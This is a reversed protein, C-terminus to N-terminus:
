GRRVSSTTMFPYLQTSSDASLRVGCQDGVLDSAYGFAKQGHAFLTSTRQDLDNGDRALALQVRGKRVDRLALALQHQVPTPFHPRSVVISLELTALAPELRAHIQPWTLLKEHADFAIGGFPAVIQFRNAAKHMAVVYPCAAAAIPIPKLHKREKPGLHSLGNALLVFFVVITVALSIAIGGVVWAVIKWTQVASRPGGDQTAENM